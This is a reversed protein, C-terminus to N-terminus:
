WLLGKFDLGKRGNKGKHMYIKQSRVNKNYKKIFDNRFVRNQPLIVTNRRIAYVINHEAYVINRCFGYVINRAACVIQARPAVFLFSSKPCLGFDVIM